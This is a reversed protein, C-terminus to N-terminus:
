EGTDADGDQQEWQPATIRLEGSDGTLAPVWSCECCGTSSCGWKAQLLDELGVVGSGLESWIGASYTIQLSKFWHSNSYIVLLDLGHKRKCKRKSVVFSGIRVGAPGEGPHYLRGKPASQTVHCLEGPAAQPFACINNEM